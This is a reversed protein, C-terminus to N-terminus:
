VSSSTRTATGADGRKDRRDTRRAQRQVRQGSRWNRIAARADPHDSLWKRVEARREAVPLAKVKAVEAAIDPNANLFAAWAQARGALAHALGLHDDLFGDIAAKETATLPTSASSPAASSGNDALAPVALLTGALVATAAGGAIITLRKM